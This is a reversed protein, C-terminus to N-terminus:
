KDYKIVYSNLLLTMQPFEIFEHQLIVNGDFKKFELGNANLCVEVFIKKDNVNESLFIRFNTFFIPTVSKDYNKTVNYKESNINHKILFDLCFDKLENENYDSLTKLRKIIDETEM